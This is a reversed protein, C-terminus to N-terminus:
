SGSETSVPLVMSHPWKTAASSHLEIVRLNPDDGGDTDQQRLQVVM